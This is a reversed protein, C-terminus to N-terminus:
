SVLYGMDQVILVNIGALTRFILVGVPHCSVKLKKKAERLQQKQQWVFVELLEQLDRREREEEELRGM